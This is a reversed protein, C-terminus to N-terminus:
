LTAICRPTGGAAPSACVQRAPCDVSTTCSGGSPVCLRVGDGWADRCESGVPCHATDLCPGYNGCMPTIRMADLNCTLRAGCDSNTRCVGAMANCERRGDGDIDVCPGGGFCAADNSCPRNFPVCFPTEDHTVLCLFGNPCSTDFTCPVRRNVCTRSGAAGECAYGDPCDRSDHCSAASSVCFGGTCDSGTACDTNDVCAAGARECLPVGCSNTTCRRGAPCAVGGACSPAEPTCLCVDFRGMADYCTTIDGADYLGMPPADTDGADVPVPPGADFAPGADFDPGADFPAGADPPMAGDDLAGADTAPADLGAADRVGADREGADFIGGDRPPTPPPHDDDGCGAAAVALVVALAVAFRARPPQVSRRRRTM